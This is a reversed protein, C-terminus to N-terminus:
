EETRRNGLRGLRKQQNGKDRVELIPLEWAGGRAKERYVRKRM